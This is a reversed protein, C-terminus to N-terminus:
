HTMREMEGNESADTAQLAVRAYSAIEPYVVRKLGYDNAFLNWSHAM